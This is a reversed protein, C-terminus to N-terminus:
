EVMEAGFFWAAPKPLNALVLDLRTEDCHRRLVCACDAIATKPAVNHDRRVGAVEKQLTAHDGFPTIVADAKYGELFVVGALPPLAGALEMVENAHLHNRLVHLVARLTHYAQHRTQLMCEDRVDELLRDFDRSAHVLDPPVTM